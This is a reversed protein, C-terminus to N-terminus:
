TASASPLLKLVTLFVIHSIDRSPCSEEVPLPLYVGTVPLRLLGPLGTVSETVPSRQFLLGPLGLLFPSYAGGTVSTVSTVPSDPRKLASSASLTLRM